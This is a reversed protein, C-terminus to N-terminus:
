EEEVLEGMRFRSVSVEVKKGFRDFVKMFGDQPPEAVMYEVYTNFHQEMGANDVCVCVHQRSHRRATAKTAADAAADAVSDFAKKTRDRRMVGKPRKVPEELEEMTVPEPIPNAAATGAPEAELWHAFEAATVTGSYGADEVNEYGKKVRKRCHEAHCATAAALTSFTGKVQTNPHKKTRAGWKGLVTYTGDPDKRIEVVYVKDSMTRGGRGSPGYYHFVKPNM